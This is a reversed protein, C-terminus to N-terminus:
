VLVGSSETKVWICEKLDMKIIGEQMLRSRGLLIKGKSKRILIYTNRMEGICIVQEM